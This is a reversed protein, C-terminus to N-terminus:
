TSMVAGSSFSTATITSTRSSSRDASTAASTTTARRKSATRSNNALSKTRKSGTTQLGSKPIAPMYTAKVTSSRDAARPSLRSFLLDRPMNLAGDLYVDTTGYPQTGNASYSGAPGSNTSSALNQSPAGSGSFAIGPMMKILEAANRTTLISSDVMENNLTASVEATDTPVEADVGSIVTVATSDSSIKLRAPVSKTDGQSLVIGTMEFAAFGKSSVTVTYSGPPLATIAFFGEKDSVTTREDGSADNKMIVKAGAVRADSQDVATGSITGTLQQARATGVAFLLVPLLLWPIRRLWNSRSSRSLGGANNADM